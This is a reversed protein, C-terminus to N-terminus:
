ITFRLFGMDILLAGGNPLKTSLCIWKNGCKETESQWYMFCGYIKLNTENLFIVYM